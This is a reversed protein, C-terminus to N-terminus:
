RPRNNGWGPPLCTYTVEQGATAALARVASDPVPAGGDDPLFAGGPQLWFATARTGVVARAVLDCETVGPGLIQSVFRAKARAVMLDIRPGVAAANTASLTIQQGVIPALDSDFALLFQEVERRQDDGRAFGTTGDASANFVRGQLFRFLTDVAGDHQFGTGRVQAGKPGNDGNNENTNAPQGFMGVKDYLNRLQPIKAIQPLAEFSSQGDTGFFGAAPNLAHCGQCTFGFGAFGFGDSFHGRSQAPAGSSCDVATHTISDLGDCGLFFSRGAAQAPNLSNDLARVPNPPMAIRLAFSTCTQMDAPPFPTKLGLLGNFAVIFNKFALNSDYPPTRSTDTGFFGSIRDGRWHMPGHNVLGRLTQTTMPGKMPHLSTAGGSGNIDSPAGLALRIQAPTIVPDADPNGLDWALNDKDAFMHCSACSVEGNSSGRTADYLFPRGAKVELPEPNALTLHSVEAGTGTDVISLGDDFRTAVYLRHRAEDLVIGSPGGGSVSLYRSSQTVPDFSDDELSAVGFVGIKSSGFAAVYLTAGDRTVAMQLPTSLSHAATGDPPPLQSYDIHKNLHRPLVKGNILVTIRSEALHGQLTEGAFTGPGEFRLDNRAETNSVYVTGSAPNVALNFLTTGAHAYVATTQLTSADLAFVDQDPLSFLASSSWDRGLTDRWVGKADAKLILGVSPAALGAYNTGPGPPAGPVSVGGVVCSGGDAGAFGPCVRALSSSMTQNGSKFIAAYVTNGDPSVTLGRPTEGFLSVIAAPTGGATAGLNTADFVWVDARGVGATTLQPDGAGPVQAISPDTRQQGRHASTVFARNGGPGAFVIDAPEDGVLLTRVVHPPQSAVDVISVSDSVHNVVWVEGNSRAAVAVPDVGVFVSGTLALGADTVAFVDLSSNSTNAAFLRTGDPSLALPRVPGSEFTFTPSIGSLVSGGDPGADLANAGADPASGHSSCAFLPVFLLASWLISRM